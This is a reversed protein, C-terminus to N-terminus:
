RSGLTPLRVPFSVSSTGSLDDGEVSMSLSICNGIDLEVITQSTGVSTGQRQTGGLKLHM